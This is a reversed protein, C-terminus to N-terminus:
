ARKRDGRAVSALAEDRANNIIAMAHDSGGRDPHYTMALARHATEIDNVTVRATPAFGLVARWRGPMIVRHPAPNHTARPQTRPPPPPPGPVPTVPPTWVPRAPRAYEPPPPPAARPSPPLVGFGAFSQAATGVGWRAQGRLANVHQAIAWVNHAPRDWRDCALVVAKPQGADDVHTFYVAAACDQGRRDSGDEACTVVVDRAPPKVMELENLLARVSQTLTREDSFNAEKPDATRQRNAPWRLPVHRSM